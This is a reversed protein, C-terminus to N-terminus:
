KEVKLVENFNPGSRYIQSNNLERQFTPYRSASKINHPISVFKGPSLSYNGSKCTKVSSWHPAFLPFKFTWQLWGYRFIDRKYGHGNIAVGICKLVLYCELLIHVAQKGVMHTETVVVLHWYHHPTRLQVLKFLSGTIVMLHWYFPSPTPVWTQTDLPHPSLLSNYGPRIDLPPYRVM